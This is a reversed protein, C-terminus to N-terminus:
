KKWPRSGHPPLGPIPADFGLNYIADDLHRKDDDPADAIASLLVDRQPWGPGTLIEAAGATYGSTVLNRFESVVDRALDAPLLPLLPVAMLNRRLAIWGEHRGQAYSMRLFGLDSERYGYQTRGLWFLATWLFADTPEVGLASRISAEARVFKPNGALVNATDLELEALRFDIMAASQVSAPQPLSTGLVADIKPRLADLTGSKFIEGAMIRMAVPWLDRGRWIAPLVVLAWVGCAVGFSTLCLRTILSATPSIARASM